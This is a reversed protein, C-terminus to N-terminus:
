EGAPFDTSAVLESRTEFDAIGTRLTDLTSQVAQSGLVM